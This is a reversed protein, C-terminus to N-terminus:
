AVRSTRLQAIITLADAVLEGASSPDLRGSSALNNVQRIFSRLYRIALTFRGRVIYFEALELKAILANGTRWTMPTKVVIARIMEVMSGIEAVPPELVRQWAPHLDWGTNDTVKIM